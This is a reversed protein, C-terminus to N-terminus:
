FPAYGEFEACGRDIKKLDFDETNAKIIGLQQERKLRKAQVIQKTKKKRLSVAFEERRKLPDDTNVISQLLHILM